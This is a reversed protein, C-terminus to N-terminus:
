LLCERSTARLGNWWESARQLKKGEAQVEELVLSGEGTAVVPANGCTTLSGPPLAPTQDDTHVALLRLRKGRMTTWAGPKPALARIQGALVAAPRHWDLREEDKSIKPAVTVLADDQPTFQWRCTPTQAAYEVLAGVGLAAAKELLTGTNDDPAIRLERRLLVPGADMGSALKFVTVGTQQELNMLARQVPAAGRYLPLLSPHINLCGITEEWALLPERILQGFDIVFSFDVPHQKRCGLVDLDSSAHASEIIPIGRLTELQEALARVPTPTAKQGRGSPRAPATVIWSPLRWAALLALCGAAFGGTGFFAYSPASSPTM